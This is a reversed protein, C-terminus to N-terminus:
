RGLHSACDELAKKDNLCQSLFEQFNQNSKAIQEQIHSVVPKPLCGYLSEGEKCAIDLKNQGESISDLVGQAIFSCLKFM